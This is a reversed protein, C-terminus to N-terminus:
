REELLAYVVSANIHDYNNPFPQENLPFRSFKEGYFKWGNRMEMIKETYVSAASMIKKELNSLSLFIFLFPKYKTQKWKRMVYNNNRYVCLIM